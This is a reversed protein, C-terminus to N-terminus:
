YAERRRDSMLNLSSELDAVKPKLLSGFFVMGAVADRSPRTETLGNWNFLKLESSRVSHYVLSSTFFCGLCTCNIPVLRHHDSHKKRILNPQVDPLSLRSSLPKSLNGPSTHWHLKEGTTLPPLILKMLSSNKVAFKPLALISANCTSPSHRFNRNQLTTQASWLTSQRVVAVHWAVHRM